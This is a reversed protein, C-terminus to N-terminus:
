RASKPTRAGPERQENELLFATFGPDNWAQPPAESTLLAVDIDAAQEDPHVWFPQGGLPLLAVIACVCALAASAGGLRALAARRGLGTLALPGSRRM